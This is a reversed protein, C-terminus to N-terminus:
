PVIATTKRILISKYQDCFREICTACEPLTPEVYATELLVEFGLSKYLEVMEDLRTNDTTFQLQWGQKELEAIKSKIEAPTPLAAELYIM